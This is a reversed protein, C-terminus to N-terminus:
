KFGAGLRTETLRSLEVEMFRGNAAWAPCRCPMGSERERAGLM